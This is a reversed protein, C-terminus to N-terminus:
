LGDVVAKLELEEYIQETIMEVLDDVAVEWDERDKLHRTQKYIRDVFFMIHAGWMKRAEEGKAIDTLADSM